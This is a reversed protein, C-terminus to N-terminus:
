HGDFARQLQAADLKGMQLMANLVRGGRAADGDGSLLRGLSSPIIQWSLGYKDQLWGCQNPAGGDGILTTWLRDIDAQTECNVFFSISETFGRSPRGANLAMFRQGELEFEVSMVRGQARHVATTKGNKFVSLYYNMAEEAQTEFWLFPTITM